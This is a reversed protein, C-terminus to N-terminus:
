LPRRVLIEFWVRAIREHMGWRDALHEVLRLGQGGAADRDHLRLAQSLHAGEDSVEGSVCRGDFALRLDIDGAGHLVANTVLESVVLLVDDLTDRALVAGWRQKVVQRAVYAASTSRPLRVAIGGGRDPAGLTSPSFAEAPRM